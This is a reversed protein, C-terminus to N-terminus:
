HTEELIHLVHTPEAVVDLADIAGLAERLESELAEHTIIVLDVRNDGHPDRQKCSAISVGHQGLITGVQGVVGPEDTTTLRM